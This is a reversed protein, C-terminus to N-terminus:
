VHSDREIVDSDTRNMTREEVRYDRYDLHEEVLLEREEMDTLDIIDKEDTVGVIEKLNDRWDM